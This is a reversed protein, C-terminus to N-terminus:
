ATATQRVRVSLGTFNSYQEFLRLLRNSRREAKRLGIGASARRKAGKLPCRWWSRNWTSSESSPGNLAPVLNRRLLFPPLSAWNLIQQSTIAVIGTFYVAKVGGPGRLLRLEQCAAGLSMDLRKMDDMALRKASVL